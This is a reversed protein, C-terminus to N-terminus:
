KCYSHQVTSRKEDHDIHFQRKSRLIIGTSVSFDTYVKGMADGLPGETISKGGVTQFFTLELNGSSTTQFNELYQVDALAAKSDNPGSIEMTTRAFLRTGYVLGMVSLM